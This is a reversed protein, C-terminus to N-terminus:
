EAKFRMGVNFKKNTYKLPDWMASTNGEGSSDANGSPIGSLKQWGELWITVTVALGNEDDEPLTGITWELNSANKSNYAVQQSNEIGYMVNEQNATEWEYGLGKDYIPEGQGNKGNNGTDLFGYTNTTITERYAPENGQEAINTEDNAYLRHSDGASFHVRVAKYLDGQNVQNNATSDVITLDVLKLAKAEYSVEEAAKKYRINLTFQIVNATVDTRNEGYGAVGTEISNHFNAIAPLADDKGMNGTVAAVGPTVPILNKQSANALKEVEASPLNSAWKADFKKIELNESQGVSTGIFAAQAKTSYQYWALTSSVSGVLAVGVALMATPIIIKNMKM